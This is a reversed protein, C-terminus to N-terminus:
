GIAKEEDAKGKRNDILQTTQSGRETNLQNCVLGVVRDIDTQCGWSEVAARGVARLVM